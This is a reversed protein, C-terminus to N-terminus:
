ESTFEVHRLVHGHSTSSEVDVKVRQDAMNGQGVNMIFHHVVAGGNGETKSARVLEKLQFPALSNSQQSLMELAFSLAADVGPDSVSEVDSAARSDVPKISTVEFGGGYAPLKQWVQAEYFKEGRSDGLTVKWNTGAVVQSEAKLIRLAGETYGLKSAVADIIGRYIVGSDDGGISNTSADVPANSFGGALPGEGQQLLGM